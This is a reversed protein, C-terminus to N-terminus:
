LAELKRMGGPLLKVEVLATVLADAFSAEEYLMKYYQVKMTLAAGLMISALTIFSGLALTSAGTVGQGITCGLSLVGGIGMLIGGVLHNVFDGVSNFWEIRFKRTIVSYLFSGCIVGALAAVGFTILSMNTPAMALDTTDAAPNIFTFSQAGVGRSPNDLFENYEVWSQGLPGATIYWAAVVAVGVAAGGLINDFNTRFESSLFVFVLLAVAIAGGLVLHLTDSPARGLIGTILDGLEQSRINHAALDISIPNMWSHFVTGYFDTRTMLYAFIGILILVLVSKLNGGGIRILTKNGCGSGLTMGFGFMLGGLIAGFWGFNPTLYIARSLDLTGTQYLFQAGIMATPAADVYPLRFVRALGYTIGFILVTQLFLPVAIWVITLPNAVIV